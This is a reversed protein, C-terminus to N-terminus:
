ATWAPSGRLGSASGLFVFARGEDIEGNTYSDAGVIVDAYGDGNVDGATGVSSGFQARSQDPEAQWDPTLSLGTASGHYVFVGGEEGQGNTYLVAGVIVDAFGDGDVDGATGVSKGFQASEQDSEATWDPSLSLGTASGLYVFARGETAQGNDFGSAGVIVDAYGDGNVDGATGVSKGFRANAQDSEATWDPIASLGTASGHFVYTKGETVQGGDYLYAGVIVDDYGDGNVDGATGASHGFWAGEQDSEATWDPSERLGLASGHFVLAQGEEMQGNSYHHAGVIVDDYGDANVDGITGVAHGLHAYTQDSEVKWPGRTPVPNAGAGSALAIPLPSSSSAVLLAPLIWRSPRM